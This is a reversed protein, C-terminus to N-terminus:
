ECKEMEELLAVTFKEIEEESTYKGELKESLTEIEDMLKLGKKEAAKNDDEMLSIAILEQAECQLKALKKADREISNGSCGALIMSVFIMAGFFKM